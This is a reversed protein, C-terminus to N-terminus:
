LNLKIPVKVVRGVRTTTSKPSKAMFEMAYSRAEFNDFVYKGVTCSAEGEVTMLYVFLSKHDNQLNRVNPSNKSLLTILKDRGARYFACKTLFHCEDEVERSECHKCM